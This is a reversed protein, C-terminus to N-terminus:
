VANEFVEKIRDPMWDPALQYAYFVKKESMIRDKKVVGIKELRRLVTKVEGLETKCREAIERDLREKTGMAAIVRTTLIDM